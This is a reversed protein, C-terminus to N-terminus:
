VTFIMKIKDLTFTCNISQFWFMENLNKKFKIEMYRKQEMINGYINMEKYQVPTEICDKNVYM